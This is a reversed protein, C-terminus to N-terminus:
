SPDPMTEREKEDKENGAKLQSHKEIARGSTKLLRLRRLLM